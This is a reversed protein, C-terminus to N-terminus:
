VTVGVKVLSEDSNSETENSSGGDDLPREAMAVDISGALQGVVKAQRLEASKIEDGGTDQAAPMERAFAFAALIMQNLSEDTALLEGMCGACACGGTEDCGCGMPVQQSEFAQQEALAKELRAPDDTNQYQSMFQPPINNPAQYLMIGRKIALYGVSEPNHTTEEDFSREEELFFRSQLRNNNLMRVTAPDGGNYTQMNAFLAPAVTFGAEYVAFHPRDTVVSATAKAEFTIDGIGSTGKSIAVYSISEAKHVFDSGQEEQVRVRFGNKSINSLRTTAASLERTTGIQAFVVPAEAFGSDGVGDEQQFAVNTWRHTSVAKRAEVRTGDELNYVGAEFVMYSVNEPGHIKDQYDWEDIKIQFSDRTINRIRVTVPDLGNQSPPGAVVVPDLYRQSFNVTKWTGSVSITNSEGIVQPGRVPEVIVGSVSYFGTSGYDINENNAHGVGDIRLYYFGQTLTATIGASLGDLPNNTAVIAGGEDILQLSIDLNPNEGFANVQINIEGDGTEFKFVDVDDPTSIFGWDFVTTDSTMRLSSATGLTNGFDDPKFQVGSGNILDYDNELNDAGTYEGRSWQVNESGFPAGMIPGWSIAGTGVGPHYASGSLGDHRLGLTHGVEHSVTMGGVRVGKNIAFCPTDDDSGFSNLFAIGGWPGNFGATQQTMLARMGYESDGPNNRILRDVGRDLTTVNVDFGAFDEAVQQWTKQIEILEADSFGTVDGDLDFRNFTEDHDWGNNVSHHGDVDLLITKTSNPNSQLKLTDELRYPAAASADGLTLVGDIYAPFIAALAQRKELGEFQFSGSKASNTRRTKEARRQRIIQELRKQNSKSM